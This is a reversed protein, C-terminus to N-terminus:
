GGVDKELIKKDISLYFFGGLLSFALTIVRWVLFIAAGGSSGMYGFLIDAAFETVGLNGPTLPLITSALVIGSVAAAALAAGGGYMFFAILVVVAILLLQGLVAFSLSLFCVKLNKVLERATCLFPLLKEGFLIKGLIKEIFSYFFPIRLLFLSIVCFLAASLGGALLATNGRFEGAIGGKLVLVIAFSAFSIILLGLFALVRDLLTIATGQMIPVACRSKLYYIRFIDGGANSPLFNSFFLGINVIKFLDKYDAEYGAASIVTKYRKTFILNQSLVLLISAALVVASGPSLLPSFARIDLRGSKFLYGILFVTLLCKLATLLRKRSKGM